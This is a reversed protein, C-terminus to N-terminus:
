TRILRETCTYVNFRNGRAFCILMVHNQEAIEITRSTPASVSIIATCRLRAVGTIIEEPVRGSFVIVKNSLDIGQLLCRGALRDLANHRSVDETNTIITKGDSVAANHVGGTRHFCGSRQDLQAALKIIDSAELMLPAEQRIDPQDPSSAQYDVYVCDERVEMNRVDERAHFEGRLYLYGVVLEGLDWPSGTLTGYPQGNTFIKVTMEEAVLDEEVRFAGDKYKTVTVQKGNMTMM